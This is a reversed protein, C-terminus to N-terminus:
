DGIAGQALDERKRINDEDTTASSVVGLFDNNKILRAYADKMLPKGKRAVAVFCADYVAVNLAGGSKLRFPRSGLNEYIMDCVTTFLTTKSAIEETAANRHAELYKNLFEAMPKKYQTGNEFLAFFRLILEVDRMRGHVLKSGFIDRWKANENM